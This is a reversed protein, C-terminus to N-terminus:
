LYEGNVDVSHNSVLYKLFELDGIIVTLRLIARSLDPDPCLLLTCHDCYLKYYHPRFCKLCYKTLSPCYIRDLLCFHPSLINWSLVLCFTLECLLSFSTLSETM